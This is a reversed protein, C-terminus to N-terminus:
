GGGFMKNFSRIDADPDNLDVVECIDSASGQTRDRSKYDTRLADAMM